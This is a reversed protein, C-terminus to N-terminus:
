VNLRCLEEIRSLIDETVRVTVGLAFLGVRFFDTRDCDLDATQIEDNKKRELSFGHVDGPQRYTCIWRYEWEDCGTFDMVLVPKSDVFEIRARFDAPPDIDKIEDAVGDLLESRIDQMKSENDDVIVVM